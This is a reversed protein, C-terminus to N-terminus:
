AGSKISLGSLPITPGVKARCLMNRRTHIIDATADYQGALNLM